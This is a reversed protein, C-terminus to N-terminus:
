PVGTPKNLTKTLIIKNLVYVIPLTICIALLPAVQKAIYLKDVFLALLWANALYQFVYIIPYLVM